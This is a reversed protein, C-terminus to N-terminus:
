SLVNELEINMKFKSLTSKRLVEFEERIDYFLPEICEYDDYEIREVYKLVNNSEQKIWVKLSCPEIPERYIIGDIDLSKETLIKANNKIDTTHAHLVLLNVPYKTIFKEHYDTHEEDYCRLYEKVIGYELCPETSDANSKFDEDSIRNSVRSCFLCFTSKIQYIDYYTYKWEINFNNNLEEGDGITLVSSYKSVPRFFMNVQM